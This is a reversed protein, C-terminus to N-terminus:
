PLAQVPDFLGSRGDEEQQHMSPRRRSGEGKDKGLRSFGFSSLWFRFLLFFHLLVKSVYQDLIAGERESWKWALQWGGGIGTSGVSEGIDQVLTNHRRM